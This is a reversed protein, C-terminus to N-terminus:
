PTPGPAAAFDRALSIIERAWAADAEIDSNWESGLAHLQELTIPKVTHPNRCAGQHDYVIDDVMVAVHATQTMSVFTPICGEAQLADHIAIAMGICGGEEFYFGAQAASCADIMHDLFDM